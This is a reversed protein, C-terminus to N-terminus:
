LGGWRVEIGGMVETEPAPEFFRNGAANPRLQGDYEVGTWNRLSLFPRFLTRGRWWDYTVRFDTITASGSRGVNDDRVVEPSLNM